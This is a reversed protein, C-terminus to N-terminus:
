EERRGKKDKRWEQRGRGDRSQKKERTVREEDGWDICSRRFLCGVCGLWFPWQTQLDWEREELVEDFATPAFLELLLM